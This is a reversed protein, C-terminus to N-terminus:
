LLIKLKDLRDVMDIVQDLNRPLKWGDSSIVTEGEDIFDYFHIKNGIFYVVKQRFIFRYEKYSYETRCRFEAQLETNPNITLLENECQIDNVERSINNKFTNSSLERDCIPCKDFQYENEMHSM